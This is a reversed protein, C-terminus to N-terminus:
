WAGSTAIGPNSIVLEVGWGARLRRNAAADLGCPEVKNKAKMTELTQVASDRVQGM